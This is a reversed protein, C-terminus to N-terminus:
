LKIIETSDCYSCYFAYSGDPLIDYDNNSLMEDINLLHKCDKNSCKRDRYKKHQKNKKMKISERGDDKMVM